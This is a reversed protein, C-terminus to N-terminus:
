WYYGLGLSLSQKRDNEWLLRLDHDAGLALRAEALTVGYSALGAQVPRREEHSLRVGFASSPRFLLSGSLRLFGSGNFGTKEQVAAGAHLAAFLNRSLQRGVGVDGQLRSVLCDPCAIRDQEAGVKVKWGFGRDGPLGTIAPNMSNIVLLDFQRIRLRSGDLRLQLDGMSLAGNRVQAGADLTDYYAPRLRFTPSSGAMRDHVMGIQLWSPARGEDPAAPPVLTSETSGVPLQLRAALAGAYGPSMKKGAERKSRELRFQHFDLVTDILAQQREVPLERVAPGDPTIEDDIVRTVLQKEGAKLASHKEYLRSQRSPHFVREALLPRGDLRAAAVSQILAQPVTWPRDRPIVELGDVVELLEAVRYACNHRFFYYVYRKQTVEWAHALVLRVAAPPLALRYEWLDRLENEGYNADHFYFEVPSFGGDYGGVIGKVIYSVPDDQKDLIAGFNLTQDLLGSRGPAKRRNFKLFVHGYYSAPNGLYGNAFVLSVSETERPDAWAAFAPCDIEALATQMEPFQQRLWLLRAPFRCKAHEDALRGLPALMAALSAQLESAPQSAGDAALFFEPSHIASRFGSPSSREAEYHLLRRWSDSQALQDPDAASADSLCAFIAVLLAGFKLLRLHLLPTERGHERRLGPADPM